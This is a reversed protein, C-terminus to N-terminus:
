STSFNLIYSHSWTKISYGKEQLTYKLSFNNSEGFSNGSFKSANVRTESKDSSSLQSCESMYLQKGGSEM